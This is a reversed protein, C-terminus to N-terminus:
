IRRRRLLLCAGILGLAASTPEPVVTFAAPYNSGGNNQFINGPTNAGNTYGEWYAQFTYGGVGLTGVGNNTLLNQTASSLSWTKDNGSVSTEPTLQIQHVNTFNDVTWFFNMHTVSSGNDNFTKIDFGQINFTGGQTLNGFGSSLQTSGAGSAVYNTGNAVIIYDGFWGTAGYSTGITLLISSAILNRLKM